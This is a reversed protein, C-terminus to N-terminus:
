RWTFNTASLTLFHNTENNNKLSFLDHCKKHIMQRLRNVHINFCKKESFFFILSDDAVSTIPAKLTLKINSVCFLTM